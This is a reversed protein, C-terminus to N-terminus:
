FIDQLSALYNRGVPVISDDEDNLTVQYSGAHIHRLGRIRNVNVLHKKHVRMFISPPLQAGVDKLLMPIEVDGHPTHLITHKGISTLYNIEEIRIKSRVDRYTFFEPIAAFSLKQLQLEYNRNKEMLVGITAAIVSVIISTIIASVMTYQSLSESIRKEFGYLFLPVLGDSLFVGAVAGIVSAPVILIFRISVPRHSFRHGVYTGLLPSLSSICYVRILTPWFSQLYTLNYYYSVHLSSIITMMFNIGTWLLILKWIDEKQIAPV